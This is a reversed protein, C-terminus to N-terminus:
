GGCVCQSATYGDGSLHQDPLQPQKKDCRALPATAFWWGNPISEVTPGENKMVFECDVVASYPAVRVRVVEAIMRIARNESVLRVAGGVTEM